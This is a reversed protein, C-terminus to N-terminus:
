ISETLIGGDLRFEAIFKHSKGSVVGGHVLQVDQGVEIVNDALRHAHVCGHRKHDSGRHLIIDQWQVGRQCILLAIYMVPDPM